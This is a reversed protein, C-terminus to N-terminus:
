SMVARAPDNVLYSLREGALAARLDEAAKRQLDTLSAESNTSRM